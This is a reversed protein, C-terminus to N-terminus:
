EAFIKFKKTKSFNNNDNSNAVNVEECYWYPDYAILKVNCEACGTTLESITMEGEPVCWMYYDKNGCFLKAEEKTYFARKADDLKLEYEEPDKSKVLFTINIERTGYSLGNFVNGDREFMDINSHSMTPLAPIEVQRVGVMDTLDIGNYKIYYAM